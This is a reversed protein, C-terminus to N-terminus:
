KINTAKPYRNKVEKIAFDRNGYVYIGYHVGKEDPLDFVIQYWNYAKTKRPKLKRM